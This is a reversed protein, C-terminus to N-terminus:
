FGYIMALQIRNNRASGSEKYSTTLHSYEVAMTLGHGLTYFASSFWLENRSRDDPSLDDGDPDDLGYGTHLHLKETAHLVVQAWGGQAAIGTRKHPNIGQGIGGFYTDLNEGRWVSGHLHLNGSLPFLVSGIASWTDYDKKPVSIPVPGSDDSHACVRETGAHGSLGFIMPRGALGPTELALNAQVTPYGAAAGDDQGGRDIDQGITRSVGLKGILKTEEALPSTHTIRVQPRRLGLAGADALNSVNVIRPLVTIFTEWDQGARISTRGREIDLYGLRLRPNPSNETGGGYFDIEVKGSVSWDPLDPVKIDIGLRTERATLNFEDKKGEEGYPLVFFMLNGAATRHTDYAADVKVYGYLSIEFMSTVALPEKDNATVPHALFGIAWASVLVYIHKKRIKM